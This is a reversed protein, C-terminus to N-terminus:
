VTGGRFPLVATVSWGGYQPDPGAACTGGLLQAREAMGTLGYGPAATPRRQAAEGDDRVELRAAAAEVRVCVGIRTANRAHRRANAVSEQALRYLAAATPAPLGGTDGSIRVEVVPGTGGDSALGSLDAVGRGPRPAAEGAREGRRLVGVIARMEALTRTAETEIVQLADAAAAPRAQATALGAQARVAIASVHHAVTDHLDRALAERELMKVRDLERMRARVRYRLATGLAAAASLVAAGGLAEGVSGGGFALAFAIGALLVASGAAIERGAGWRYLAYPLLLLFVATAPEAAGGTLVQTLAGAPCAVVLMLLPRSRRWLLTLLLGAFVAVSVWRWPPDLRLAGDLVTLAILVGVLAGDRLPRPAPRVPRPEDWVARLLPHM